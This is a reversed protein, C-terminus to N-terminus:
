VDLVLPATTNTWAEVLIMGGDGGSLTTLFEYGLHVGNSTIQTVPSDSLYSAYSADTLYQLPNTTTMSTTIFNLAGDAQSLRYSLFSYDLNTADVLAQIDVYVPFFDTLDRTGNVHGSLGNPTLRKSAPEGPIGDGQDDGSDNDDNVWFRFPRSPTCFDPGAFRTDIVGDHNRDAYLGIVQVDVSGHGGEANAKTTLVVGDPDTPFFEGYESLVGTENSTVGGLFTRM